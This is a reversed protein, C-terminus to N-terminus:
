GTLSKDLTSVSVGLQQAIEARTFGAARMSQARQIKLPTMLVRSRPTALHRVRDMDAHLMIKNLDTKSLAGAQIAAWENDEIHIRQSQAGTRNRAKTLAKHNLKRVTDKSLDPNARRRAAIEANAIHQAARERPANMQAGRLKELLSARESAFAQKASKNQKSDVKDAAMAQLRAENALGKLYNSHDAYKRETATGSSLTHADNTRDLLNHQERKLVMEGTSEWEGTQKNKHRERQKFGTEVFVREGTKPDYPGGDPHKRLTTQPTWKSKSKKRSILTAAGARSGGQYKQKLASIGNRQASLRINLHHKEADIVVMSHRVARVVEDTSAGQLQMDMILNSVDGMSSEKYHKTVAPATSPLKYDRHPDFDKLGALAPSSKVSGKDNPILLVADGDFDAGSLREAVKPNIGIVDTKDGGIIRRAERNNNNVRLEPIEFTGAHPYRVLAVREGNRRTPAYVEHEAISDFPLIVHWAQGAMGAAKLHVAAADTQEAYDLLLKRKVVPNTLDLIEDLDQRRREQTLRLQQDILTAPQKALMQSSLSESWKAWSGEENVINIVSKPRENATGPDALMQRAIVSGFPLNPDDKLPKFADFDSAMDKKSKPTNFIVDPGNPDMDDRVMAMGKLFHTAKGSRDSVAIRVQAYLNGGMDLDAVGPKVYIVGDAKGGGDEAYRVKIRSASLPLPPHDSRFYTEGGDESYSRFSQIKDRNLFADRQTVGPGVLVRHRTSHGSTAQPKRVPWTNYGEQKLVDIAAQLKTPSINLEIETGAGVDVFGVEDVRKRLEDSTARLIRARRDADPKLLSRFTPEPIGMRKAAETGSMGKAKLSNAMAIDADLKNAISITKAARLQNQTIGVGEAIQAPTLGKARMDGLYRLYDAYVGAESEYEGGSGWPYRGSRRLIGYHELHDSDETLVFDDIDTV